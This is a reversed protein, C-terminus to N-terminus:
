ENIKDGLPSYEMSVEKKGAIEEIQAFFGGEGRQFCIWILNMPDAARGKRSGRLWDAGRAAYIKFLFILTCAENCHVAWFAGTKRLLPHIPTGEKPSPNHPM